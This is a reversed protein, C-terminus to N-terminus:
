RLALREEVSCGKAQRKVSFPAGILAVAERATEPAAKEADV